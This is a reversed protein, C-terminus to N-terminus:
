QVEALAIDDLIDSAVLVFSSRLLVKLLCAVVQVSEKLSVLVGRNIYSTVDGNPTHPNSDGM